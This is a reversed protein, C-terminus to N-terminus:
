RKPLPIPRGGGILAYYPAGCNECGAVRIGNMEGMNRVTGPYPQVGALKERKTRADCDTGICLATNAM